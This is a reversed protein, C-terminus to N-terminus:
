CWRILVMQCSRFNVRLLILSSDNECHQKPGSSGPCFQLPQQLHGLYQYKIQCKERKLSLDVM